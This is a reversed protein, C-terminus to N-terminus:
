LQKYVDSHHDLLYDHAQGEDYIDADFLVRLLREKGAADTGAVLTVGSSKGRKRFITSTAVDSADSVRVGRRGDEAPEFTCVRRAAPAVAEVPAAAEVAAAPPAAADDRRGAISSLVIAELQHANTSQDGAAAGKKTPAKKAAKKKAGPKETLSMRRAAPKQAEAVSQLVRNHQALAGQAATSSARQRDVQPPTDHLALRRRGPAVRVAMEALEQQEQLARQAQLKAEKAAACHAQRELLTMALLNKVPPPEAAANENAAAPRASHPRTASTAGVRAFSRESKSGPPQLGHDHPATGLDLRPLLTKSGPTRGPSFLAAPRAPSRPTALPTASPSDRPTAHFASRADDDSANSAEGDDAFADDDEDGLRVFKSVWLAHFTGAKTECTAQLELAIHRFALARKAPFAEGRALQAELLEVLGSNAEEGGLTRKPCQNRLWNSLEMSKAEWWPCEQCAM